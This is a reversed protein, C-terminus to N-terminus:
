KGGGKKTEGFNAEYFKILEDMLQKKKKIMELGERLVRVGDETLTYVRRDTKSDMKEWKSVLLGREEMRRLLTYMAGPEPIYNESTIRKLEEMLQYGHSPREYLVRLILLQIMGVGPYHCIRNGRGCM